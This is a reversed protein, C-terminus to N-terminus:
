LNKYLDWTKAIAKCTKICQKCTVREPNTNSTLMMSYHRGMTQVGCPYGVYHIATRTRAKRIERM